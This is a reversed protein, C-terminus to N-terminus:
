VKRGLGGLGGRVKGIRELETKGLIRVICKVYVM